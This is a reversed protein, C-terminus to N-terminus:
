NGILAWCPRGYTNGLIFDSVILICFNLLGANFNGAIVLADARLFVARVGNVQLLMWAGDNCFVMEYIFLAVFSTHFLM